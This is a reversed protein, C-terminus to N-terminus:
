KKVVVNDLSFVSCTRNNLMLARTESPAAISTPLGVAVGVRSHLIHQNTKAQLEAQNLGDDNYMPEPFCVPCFYHRLVYLNFALWGLLCTIGFAYYIENKFQVVPFLIKITPSFLFHTLPNPM